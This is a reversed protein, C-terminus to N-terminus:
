QSVNLPDSTCPVVVVSGDVILNGDSFKIYARKGDDRAKKMEAVMLRRRRRENSSLDERIYINSGKLHKSVKLVTIKDAVSNMVVLIMRNKDPSRKGIITAKIPVSEINLKGHFIEQVISKTSSGSESEEEEVNGILLNCKRRKREKDREMQEHKSTLLKVTSELEDIKEARPPPSSDLALSHNIHHVSEGAMKDSELATVRM